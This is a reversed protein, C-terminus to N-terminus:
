AHLADYIHTVTVFVHMLIYFIRTFDLSLKARTTCLLYDKSHVNIIAIHDDETMYEPNM